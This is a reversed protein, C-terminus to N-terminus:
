GLGKQILNVLAADAVADIFHPHLLYEVTLGLHALYHLINLLLLNSHKFKLTKVDFTIFIKVVLQFEEFFLEDFV